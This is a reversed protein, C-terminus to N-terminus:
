RKNVKVNSSYWCRVSWRQKLCSRILFACFRVFSSFFLNFLIIQIHQTATQKGAAWMWPVFIIFLFRWKLAGKTNRSTSQHFSTLNLTFLWFLWSGLGRKLCNAPVHLTAILENQEKAATGISRGVQRQLHRELDNLTKPLSTDSIFVTNYIQRLLENLSPFPSGFSSRSHTHKYHMSPHRPCDGHKNSCMVRTIAPPLFCRPFSRIRAWPIPKADLRLWHLGQRTYRVLETMSSTNFILPGMVKDLESFFDARSKFPFPFCFPQTLWFDDLSPSPAIICGHAPANLRVKRSKPYSSLRTGCRLPTCSTPPSKSTAPLWRTSVSLSPWPPAPAAAAASQLTAEPRARRCNLPCQPPCAQQRAATACM